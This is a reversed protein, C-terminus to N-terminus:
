GLSGEGALIYHQPIEVRIRTGSGPESSIELRGGLESARQAMNQLGMGAYALSPDFGSGNDEVVLWYRGDESKIIVSVQSAEAHKLTNNLAESILRFLEQEARGTLKLSEAVHIEAQIGLRHEVLDFRAEIAQVLEGEELTMSRLQYLLLRMERLAALSNTEVQELSELLKTQDGVEYADRGSRAFLTLSYLSQSVADHLERALRQREQITAAEEAKLRLRYNEVAMGLQEGIANLFFVQYPNFPIDSLRYCSLLGQIKGRARLSIHTASQFRPFEFAAPPVVKGSSWIEESNGRMWAAMSKDMEITRLQSLYEKRFGRQAVLEMAQQDEAFLHISAAESASIEMIRVLAPQMIDSVEQAEGALMTMDFFASLERTRESVKEELTSLLAERQLLSGLMDTVVEASQINESLISKPLNLNSCAIVGALHDDMILPILLLSDVERESLLEKEAHAGDPLTSPDSIYISQGGDLQDHFWLYPMDLYEELNNTIPSATPAHWEIPEEITNPSRNSLHIFVVRSARMIKGLDAMTEHIASKLEMPSLLRASIKALIRGIELREELEEQFRRREHIEYRLEENAKAIEITREQVREELQSLTERLHEEAQWRQVTNGIIESATRLMLVEREDWRRASECDDFGVFGWWQGNFSIPFTQISLLPPSQSLFAELLEPSSAMVQETPGGYPKSAGLSAFWENPLRSWPFRQNVPNHIHPQVGEACAEALISLCLGRDPDEINRFVYARSVQAGARLHELAQNLVLGQQERDKALLLLSQSCSALAQEYRLQRHLRAKISDMRHNYL